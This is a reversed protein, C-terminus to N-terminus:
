QKRTSGGGTTDISDGVVGGPEEGTAEDQAVDGGRSRPPDVPDSEQDSGSDPGSGCASVVLLTAIIVALRKSSVASRCRHRHVRNGQLLHSFGIMVDSPDVTPPWPGAPRARAHCTARAM